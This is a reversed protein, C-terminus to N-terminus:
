WPNLPMMVDGKEQLRRLRRPPPPNREAHVDTESRDPQFKSVANSAGLESGQATLADELDLRADGIDHLRQRPDKELCRRLLRRVSQPTTEPQARWDPEHELIAAVFDSISEGGGFARRGTLLEYLVCGFAWIDTRKDLPKGRVQEPSMYPVTGLILGDRTNEVTTLSAAFSDAGGSDGLVKAIGFDLVKVIGAETIKINAPKLDRHVIGKEHAAELADAIDRAAILARRVPLPGLAVLDVLTAGDVLELVLARVGGGTTSATFGASTRIILHPWYAHKARSARLGRLIRTFAAPLVKIAVDRELKTDRACYVEGMGGSGLLGLLEYPGLRAGAALSM